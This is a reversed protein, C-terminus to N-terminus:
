KTLIGAFKRAISRPALRVSFAGLKNVLGPVMFPQGRRMARYGARAVTDVPWPGLHFLRSNHMRAVDVFETKTPGPCLCTATVGTGRLEEHLAETFSLVFAKSAFYVAMRPGPQFAATSGLNLVSGRGRQIMGPVLRRTFHVLAHVNVQIMELQRDCPIESFEGNAGFGANNVLVDVELSASELQEAIRRPAEPDTLDAPMVHVVSNHQQRLESALQELKEERRAVLVLQSGDAAFLKALAWGIGSSAGTILATEPMTM